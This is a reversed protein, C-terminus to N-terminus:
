RLTCDQRSHLSYADEGPAPGLALALLNLRTPFLIEMFLLATRAVGATGHADACFVRRDPREVSGSELHLNHMQARGPASKGLDLKEADRRNGRQRQIALNAVDVESGAQGVQLAPETVSNGPVRRSRQTPALSEGKEPDPKECLRLPSALVRNPIM